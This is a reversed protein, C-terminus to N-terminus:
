YVPVHVHVHVHVNYKYMYMYVYMYENTNNVPLSILYHINLIYKYIRWLIM